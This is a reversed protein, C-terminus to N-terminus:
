VSKHIEILEHQAFGSRKIGRAIALASLRDPSKALSLVVSKIGDLEKELNKALARLHETAENDSTANYINPPNGTHRAM